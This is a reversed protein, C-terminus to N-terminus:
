RTTCTAKPSASSAAPAGSRRSPVSSIPSSTSSSSRMVVDRKSKPTKPSTVVDRRKIRQYSKTVHILCRGLDIDDPELALLEGRGRLGCWYLIEFAYFSAPKDMVEESFMLYQEKTWFKM